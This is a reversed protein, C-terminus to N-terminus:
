FGRREPRFRGCAMNLSFGSQAQAVVAHRSTHAHVCCGPSMPVAPPAFRSHGHRAERGISPRSNATHTFLEVETKSAWGAEFMVDGVDSRVLELVHYLDHWRVEDRSFIALVDAIDRDDIALSAWRRTEETPELRRPVVVTGIERSMAGPTGPPTNRVVGVSPRPYAGLEVRASGCAIALLERAMEPVERAEELRDLAVSTLYFKGDSEQRIALRADHFNAALESLFGGDEVEVWWRSAM